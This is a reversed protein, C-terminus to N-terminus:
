SVVTTDWPLIITPLRQNGPNFQTADLGHFVGPNFRKKM